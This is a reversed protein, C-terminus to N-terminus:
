CLIPRPLISNRAYARDIGLCCTATAWNWVDLSQNSPRRIHWYSIWSRHVLSCARKPPSSQSSIWPVWAHPLDHRHRTTAGPWVWSVSDVEPLSESNQLRFFQSARYPWLIFTNKGIM